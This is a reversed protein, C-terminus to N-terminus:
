VISGIDTLECGPFWICSLGRDEIFSQISNFDPHASLDGNFLVSDGCRGSTGGIFGTDYGPLAIHGPRVLLVDMGAQRCPAAIAQDYTIISNEDVIVTSCKTYGQRVDIMTMSSAAELLRSNTIDLRHIFFRGTCAANFAAEAPYGKNLEAASASILPSDDRCGLRCHWVDAHDSIGFSVTSNRSLTTVTYGHATLHDLLRPSTNESLFKAPM